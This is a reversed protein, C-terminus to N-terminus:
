PESPKQFTKEEFVASGDFLARSISLPQAPAPM